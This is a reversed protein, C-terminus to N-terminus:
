SSSRFFRRMLRDSLPERKFIIQEETKTIRLSKWDVAELLFDYDHSLVMPPMDNARGTLVVPWVKGLRVPFINDSAFYFSKGDEFAFAIIFPFSTEKMLTDAHTLGNTVLSYALQKESIKSPDDTELPLERLDLDKAESDLFFATSWEREKESSLNLGLAIRPRLADSNGKNAMHLILFNCNKTIVQGNQTKFHLELMASSSSAYVLKPRNHRDIFFRVLGGHVGYRHYPHHTPHKSRANVGLTFDVSGTSLDGDGHRAIDRYTCERDALAVHSAKEENQDERRPV